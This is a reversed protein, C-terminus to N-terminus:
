VTQTPPLEWAVRLAFNWTTCYSSAVWFSRHTSSAGDARHNFEFEFQNALSGDCANLRRLFM